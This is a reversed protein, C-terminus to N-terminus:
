PAAGATSDVLFGVLADIEAPPLEAYLRPMRDAPFGQEVYAGPDVISERIFEELPQGAKSALGPLEDLNPCFTSQNGM